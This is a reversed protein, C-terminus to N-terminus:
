DKLSLGVYMVAGKSSRGKKGAKKFYREINHQFDNKSMLEIGTTKGWGVFEDYLGKLTAKASPNRDCCENVFRLVANMESKYSKIEDKVIKPKKLGYKQWSCCGKVAWALVGPLEERIIEEKLTKNREKSPITHPFPILNVRTWVAKDDYSLKPKDNFAFWYKATTRFDFYEKYLFRATQRDGGTLTKILAEDFRKGKGVETAAVFRAGAMRAIDNPIRDTNRALFTEMRATQAYVGLMESIVDIFTSKGSRKPGYLMFLCHERTDGTLSYGVARRVYRILKKDGNLVKKLYRRWKPCRANKDYEVPICKTIYDERNFPRLEQMRLDLTGNQCNLLFHHCDLSEAKIPIDGMNAARKIMIDIKNGNECKASYDLLGKRRGDNKIELANKRLGTITEIALQAIGGEADKEWCMNNWVLWSKTSHCYRLDRGHYDILREANGLDTHPYVDVVDEKKIALWKIFNKDRIFSILTPFGTVIQLNSVKEATDRVARIRDKMEEDGMAEAISIVFHEVTDQKWGARLLGGALSLAMYHRYTNPMWHQAILCAAALRMVKTSLENGEVVTPEANVSWEIQEGSPHISPPFVTQLGDGRLELLMGAHNECENEDRIASAFRMSKIDGTVYYLWHSDPKSAHGFKVTEPLFYPALRIAEQSDLDIDILNGSKPGLVIGVNCSKSFCKEIDKKRIKSDPWGTDTAIKSKYEIRIPNWGNGIYKKVAKKMKEMYGITCSKMKGNSNSGENAQNKKRIQM